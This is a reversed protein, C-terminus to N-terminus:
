RDAMTGEKPRDNATHQDPANPQPVVPKGDHGVQVFAKDSNKDPAEQVDLKEQENKMASIKFKKLIGYKGNL